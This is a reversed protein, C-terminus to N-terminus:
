IEYGGTEYKIEAPDLCVSRALNAILKEYTIAEVEAAQNGGDTTGQDGDADDGNDSDDDDDADPSRVTDTVDFTTNRVYVDFAIGSTDCTGEINPKYCTYEVLLEDSLYLTKTFVTVYFCM